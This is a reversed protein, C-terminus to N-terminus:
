TRAILRLSIESKINDLEHTQALTQAQLRVTVGFLAKAAIEDSGRNVYWLPFNRNAKFKAIIDHDIAKGGRLYRLITGDQLSYSISISQM